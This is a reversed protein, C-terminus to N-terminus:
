WPPHVCPQELQELSRQPGRAGSAAAAPIGPGHGDGLPLPMVRLLLLVFKLGLPQGVALLVWLKPHDSLWWTCIFRWSYTRKNLM